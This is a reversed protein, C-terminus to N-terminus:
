RREGFAKLLWLLFYRWLPQSNAAQDRWALLEDLIREPTSFNGTTRSVYAPYCILAGAVLEDLTLTRSRRRAVEDSLAHDVTLGWGAYFPQGYTTVPIGRLLAEFGTLSTLVHVEDVRSLLTHICTNELRRDYYASMRNENKGAARLGSVVDPHPKYILYASPNAIRVAHLLDINSRISSAGYRISADSEVQGPVLIVRQGPLPSLEGQEGAEDAAAPRMGVNYKTVGQSVIRQRLRAARECLGTDFGATQLLHELDSSRTADYYIGRRDMVWSLPRVLEAGLGVSRLFGDELRVCDLAMESTTPSMDSGWLALTSRQPVIENRRCFYVSTGAFFRRVGSRKILSFGKAYVQPPFRGRMRRQLALYDLVTEVECIRGTEPHIYRPYAILSAHVLQELTALGRRGPAPLEDQTLGWGAYFPMGFTRVTKGWLLGEFGLQSTVVYVAEAQELISSPHIDESLVKIRPNKALVTSGFYGCKWGTFVEPHSKLVICCDPNEALAAELMREFSSQDAQGYKISADGRTQDVVLVYPRSLIDDHSAVAKWDQDRQHNYKSVRGEQWHTILRQSRQTELHSLPQGILMELRSARSADYYIGVDDIVMSLTAEKKGPNVSRLFGDELALYPLEHERAYRMARAATFRRGWGAVAQVTHVHGPRTQGVNVATGLFTELHPITRIGPSFIRIM